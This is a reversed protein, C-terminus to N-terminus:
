PAAVGEVDIALADIQWTKSTNETEAIIPQPAGPAPGNSQGPDGQSVVFSGKTEESGEPASVAITLVLGQHTKADLISPDDIAFQITGTPSQQEFVTTSDDGHVASITLKREPANIKLKVNVRELEIQGVADPFKFLLDTETSKTVDTLWQGNRPNFLSSIGRYKAFSETQIFTSPIIIRSGSEPPVLRVPVSILSTGKRTFSDAVSLGVSQPDSWFLLQPGNVLFSKEATEFLRRLVVQRKSQEDDLLTDAVFQDKALVDSPGIRVEVEGGAPNISVASSPSPFGALFADEVQSEGATPFRGVFGSEDFTGVVSRVIASSQKSSDKTSASRVFMSTDSYWNEVTGPPQDPQIWRNIGSDGWQVRKTRSGSWDLPQVFTDPASTLEIPTEEQCYVAYTSQIDAEETADNIVVLQGSAITTPISGSNQNGVWLMVASTLLAVAPILVALMELRKRKMWWLGGLAILLTNAGMLSAAISRSPISYGIQDNVVPVMATVSEFPKARPEFLRRSLQGLAVTPASEATLWGAHGLTTFLVEGDGVSQWFAAPWGNVNCTVDKSATYVRVFDVPTESEWEESAFAQTAVVDATELTFQNLTTRDAIDFEADDGLLSRVLDADTLDLMIWLRGGRRLWRRVALLGASDQKLANGAIVIQDLQDLGGQTDPLFNSAFAINPLEMSQQIATSRGANILSMLEQMRAVQKGDLDIEPAEMLLGTNIEFQTLLLSRDVTASDTWDPRLTEGDPGSEISMTTLPINVRDFDDQPPVLLPIWAQRRSNAPIWFKTAFQIDANGDLYVSVIEERDKDTRNAGVATLPTWRSDSARQVVSPAVLVNPKGASEGSQATALSPLYIVVAFVFAAISACSLRRSGSPCFRM